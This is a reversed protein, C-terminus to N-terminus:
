ETESKISFVLNRVEASEEISISYDYFKDLSRLVMTNFTHVKHTKSIRINDVIKLRLTNVVLVITDPPDNILGPIISTILGSVFLSSKIPYM